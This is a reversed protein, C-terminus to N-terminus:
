ILGESMGVVVEIEVRDQRRGQERELRRFDPDSLALAPDLDPDQGQDFASSGKVLESSRNIRRWFPQFSIPHSFRDRDKL